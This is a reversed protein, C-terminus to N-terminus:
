GTTLGGQKAHIRMSSIITQHTYSKNRVVLTIFNAEQDITATIWQRKKTLTANPQLLVTKFPSEEEDEYVDLYIPTSVTNLLIEVHSVYVRRGNPRFPNFPSMEAEFPIVKEISGSTTYTTFNRSDENLTVSTATASIVTYIKDEIEEMGGVNLLIVEDGIQFNAPDITVVANAAKSIASINTFYDDFGENIQYIFGDNDGALTKQRGLTTGIENMTEETTDARYWTPHKVSGSISAMSLAQGANSQGLVSFRQDDISWTAEKYNYALIKDQTVPSLGSANQRFTFLFQETIRDFGGYILEFQEQDMLRSTVYPIKNDFRLSKRGDTTLMGTKGVSKVEYNWAVTSFSADTGLVSPTKEIFYPNFADRTKRLTWNSRQFNIIMYDSIVNIGKLIEYTDADLRGSGSTNFKDGNGANNQEASYLISQPYEITAIVPKIFNIRNAFWTVYTAKSLAGLSPAQYTPNDTANTYVGINTGNYFYIESMGKSCFIFRPGNFTIPIAPPGVVASPNYFPYTVGSIYSSNDSIGLSYTASIALLRANFPIQDWTNTVGNYVYFYEKSIAITTIVSTQPNVDEFIGMVRSKDIVAPALTVDGLQNGFRTFGKRSLLEQRYVNGNELREFADVPDLFNVGANDIGTVYGVVEYVDM